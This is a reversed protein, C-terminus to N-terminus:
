EISILRAYVGRRGAVEEEDAQADGHSTPENM